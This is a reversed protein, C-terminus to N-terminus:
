SHILNQLHMLWAFVDAGESLFYGPAVPAARLAEALEGLEETFRGITAPYVEVATVPYIEAFM